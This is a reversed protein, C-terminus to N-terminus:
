CVSGGWRREKRAQGKQSLKYGDLVASWDHSDDWWTETIAVGDYSKQQVIAELEEQKNEMSCVNIYFCKLQAVLGVVKKTYSPRVVVQDNGPVAMTGLGNIVRTDRITSERGEGKLSLKFVM